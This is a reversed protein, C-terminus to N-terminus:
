EGSLLAKPTIRKSKRSLVCIILFLFLVMIIGSLAVMGCPIAFTCKVIGINQLFLACLPNIIYSNVILGLITAPIIAPMFSLATQQMFQRGSFGLAKMIGYEYKKHNLLTRVLLYLVLTVILLSLIVIALVILTMLSIYIDASADLVSAINVAAILSAQFYASVDEQFADIDVTDKLNIYYCLDQLSGMREYGKRTLLCDKGLYNSIQSFGTVIYDAEKGESSLTIEDGIAIQRDKAYKAAIMVENDYQPFRGKTCVAQNNVDKFDDTVTAVLSLGNVHRVPISHYLYSKEVREDKEMYRIFDQERSGEVTLSSDAYEGVIMDIFPKSDMIMNDFLTLAFVVVLTLMLMTIAVVINQKWRAAATKLGLASLLPLHTTALPVVNRKFSHTQLGQRLARIVEIQKIKRAAAYVAATVSLTIFASTLLFPMVLFHIEYPIGTQAIMMKNVTPFLGYSLLAGIMSSILTIGSFQILLAIVIQKSQYGAAKLIGIDTMREQIDNIVNAIIVILVILLVVFAMASVIAACVMQSIYRSSAVLSYTNSLTFVDPYQKALADNLSVEVDECAAKDNIRVSVLTAKSLGKQETLHDYEDDSLIFSIMSCNHSGSMINNILGVIPYSLTTNGVTIDLNDHLRYQDEGAYLLPLYIGSQQYEGAVLESKGIRRQFATSERIFILASNIEGSNYSFSGNSFLMDSMEYETVQDEKRLTDEIFQRMQEDDSSVAMTLHESHLKDHQVDFNHKYDSALMLWLNMMCSALLILVIIVITQNKNKRLNSHTILVYKKMRGGWRHLSHPCSHM